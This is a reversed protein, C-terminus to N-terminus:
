SLLDIWRIGEGDPVDRTLKRGIIHGFFAPPIGPRLRRESRLIACNGTSLVTGASLDARAHISRNSRGYSAAESEALRKVGDGRAAALRQAGFEDALEALAAEGRPAVSRVRRCLQAFERPEVSVADDLGHGDRELTVHKEIMGAGLAAAVTPIFVPDRSHDSVGVPIGFISRLSVLLELNYEEEPAPYATICHLLYLPANTASCVSLATEIDALRAVGSSLITPLDYSAVQELLPLHNLEPSAIKFAPTGLEALESASRAGFATAFPIIGVSRAHDFLAAMFDRTTEIEHLRDYIPIERGGAEINGSLPHLIEDAYVHQFKICDAGAEHAAEILERGRGLDGRHDSGAEAVIVARGSRPKFHDLERQKHPRSM